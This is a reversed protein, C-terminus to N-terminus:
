LPTAAGAPVGGSITALSLAAILSPMCDGSILSRSVLSPATARTLEAASNAANMAASCVLHDPSALDALMLTSQRPTIRQRMDNDAFRHRGRILDAPLSRRSM